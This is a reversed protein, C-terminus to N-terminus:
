GGTIGALWDAIGGHGRSAALDHPTRGKHDRALPNAGAEVLLYVMRRDGHAAAGHLPTFGGAQRANVDGGRRLLLVALDHCRRAVAAHLPAARM